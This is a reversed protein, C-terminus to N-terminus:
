DDHQRAGAELVGVRRQFVDFRGYLQVSVGACESLDQLQLQPDFDGGRDGVDTGAEVAHGHGDVQPQLDLGVLRLPGGPVILALAGVVEVRVLVREGAQGHLSADPALDRHADPEAAAGGRAQCGGRQHARPVHLAVDDVGA